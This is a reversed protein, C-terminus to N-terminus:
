KKAPRRAALRKRVRRRVEIQFQVSALGKCYERHKTLANFATRRGVGAEDAAEQVAAEIKIGYGESLILIRRAIDRDRHLISRKPTRHAPRKWKGDLVDAIIERMHKSIPEGTRVWNALPRLDGESAAIVIEVDTIDVM